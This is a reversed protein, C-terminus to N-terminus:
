IVESSFVENCNMIPEVSIIPHLMTTFSSIFSQKSDIVKGGDFAMQGSSLNNTRYKHWQFCDHSLFTIKRQSIQIQCRYSKHDSIRKCSISDSVIVTKRALSSRTIMLHTWAQSFSSCNM